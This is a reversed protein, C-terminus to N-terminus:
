FQSWMTYKRMSRFMLITKKISKINILTPILRNKRRCDDGVNPEPCFCRKQTSCVSNGPCENDITCNIVKICKTFPDPDPISGGPCICNFSGPLNTCSADKGCSNIDSCENIDTFQNLFAM